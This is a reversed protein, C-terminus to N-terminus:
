REEAIRDLADRLLALYEVEECRPKSGMVYLDLCDGLHEGLDEDPLEVALESYVLGAPDPARAGAVPRRRVLDRLRVPM